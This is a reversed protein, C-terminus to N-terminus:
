RSIQQARQWARDTLLRLGNLSVLLTSGEHCAVGIPLPLHGFLDWIVLVAIFSTAIMLNAIVVKRARRALAIVTPIVTLEDRVTIVDATELALDSGSRGMALAAHATAMAPADNVGDGIMLVREGRGELAHVADAKQHPLLDARVDSIGVSEALATAACLNDGTLLLPPRSTSNTLSRIAGAADPRVEDHLGLVAVPADNRTVIVATAGMEQLEAVSLLTGGTYAAPSMVAIDDTGLRARVGRGTLARFDEVVPLELGRNRASVTIAKGLPHESFQEVAAAIRLVDSEGYSADIIRIQTLRPTGRTLTGTKDLAAVTTDALREMAVASKVLVGHRGANAVASLLPPMTALVLACPSAVIMFTMARLLAAQLDVGFTLPVAFLAVTAVVVGISYRQEIKEVFLQTQAKTATAASVLEVIKAVVTSSPDQTVVITLTGSGNLSGAFVTDNLSKPAPLPEGTISAQDVQSFGSTVTGDASILEGPRIIVVDGVRLDSAAIQHEEGDPDILMATEPALDLLGRVSDETRKTALGELASSTAFIVILLAGDTVQGISAAAIAAIIMLMDVDLTRQRLAQIGARAPEWGGAAYCALYISWWLADPGGALQVSLGICFLTLATTAWRVAPVSWGHWRPMRSVRQACAVEALTSSM